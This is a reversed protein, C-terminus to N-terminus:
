AGCALAVGVLSVGILVASGGSRHAPVGPSQPEAGAPAGTPELATPEPTTPELATPELTTSDPKTSELPAAPWGRLPPPAGPVLDGPMPFAAPDTGNM